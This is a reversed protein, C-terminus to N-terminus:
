EEKEQYNKDVKFFLLNDGDKINNEFISKKNNVPFSNHLACCMFHKLGQPCQEDHFRNFVHHFKEGLKAKVKECEGTSFKFTMILEQILNVQSM